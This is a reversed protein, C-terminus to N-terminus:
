CYLSLRVCYETINNIEPFWMMAAVKGAALWATFLDRDVLGHIAFPVVQIIQKFQRGILSGRYQVLYSARIPPCNLGRVDISALRSTSSSVFGSGEFDDFKYM